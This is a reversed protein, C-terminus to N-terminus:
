SGAPRRVPPGAERGSLTLAALGKQNFLHIVDRVTDVDAAVLRAIAPALTGSASATV